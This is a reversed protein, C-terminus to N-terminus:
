SEMIPIVYVLVNYSHHHVVGKSERITPLPDDMVYVHVYYSPGHNISLM